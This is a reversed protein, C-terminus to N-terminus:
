GRIGDVIQIRRGIWRMVPVAMSNGIAKYRPGDPTAGVRRAEDLPIGLYAAMEEIEDARLKQRYNPILTHNDPFGQLRECERATLRRVAVWTALLPAGDGRGSGGSQAKLAPAVVDPAGRGNRVFRSEFVVPPGVTGGDSALVPPAIESPAFGDQGFGRFAVALQGGANPHSGRHGMARMTPVANEMADAGGDKCSFGVPLIPVGRGTGDESADMGEGRLTHAVDVCFTETEFDMRMSGGHANCATAVDIPGKTNNGGFAAVLHGSAAGHAGPDFGGTSARAELTGAIDQRTKRRAPTDRCLGERELPVAAARRWDGLHGVVFVRRRRQPVGFFQADLVRWACGYGVEALAGLIAGFDRGGDSSLVGPVNESVVWRPRLRGALRCFEIALQGRPDDLGGRRGAVSFSPCPTGGVLIDIPGADATIRTFDGLNEVEPYRHALLASCFRDIEAFWAARFGLPEWAVTAAEIGSCISGYIMIQPSSQQQRSVVM